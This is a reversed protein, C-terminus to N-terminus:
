KRFRLKFKTSNKLNPSFYSTFVKLNSKLKSKIRPFSLNLYNPLEFHKEVFDALDFGEVQKEGEYAAVIEAANSKPKCDVFTKGDPFIRALQVDAFLQGFREDPSQSETPFSPTDVAPTTPRCALTLLLITIPFLHLRKM